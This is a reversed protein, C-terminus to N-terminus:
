NASHNSSGARARGNEMRNVTDEYEPPDNDGSQEYSYNTGGPYSSDYSAEQITDLPEQDDALHATGMPPRGVVSLFVYYAVGCLVVISLIVGITIGAGDGFARRPIDDASTTNETTPQETVTSAEPTTAHETQTPAESTETTTPAETPQKTAPAETSKHTTSPRETTVPEATTIEPTVSETTHVLPTTSKIPTETTEVPVVTTDSPPQTTDQIPNTSALSDQTSTLIVPKDTKPFPGSTPQGTISTVDEAKAYSSFIFVVLFILKSSAMM